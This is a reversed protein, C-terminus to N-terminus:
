PSKFIELLSTPAASGKVLEVNVRIHEIHRAMLEQALIADGSRMAQVIGAHEDDRCNVVGIKGFMGIILSSRTVLDKVIQQLVANGSLQALDNHFQGSLRIAQVRDGAAHAASEKLLHRELDKVHHARARKAAINAILPEIMLRAEFVDLAQQASPKAVFAGRNPQLDIIDRNSLLLLARRIRMRGVGFAKCLVAESLKIGPALRQDMVASYIREVIADEEAQEGFNNEIQESM